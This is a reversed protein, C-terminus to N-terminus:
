SSTADDEKLTCNEALPPWGELVLPSQIHHERYLRSAEDMLQQAQPLDLELQLWARIEIRALHSVTSVNDSATNEGLRNLLKLGKRPKNALMCYRIKLRALAEQELYSLQM